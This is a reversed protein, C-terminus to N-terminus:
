YIDDPKQCSVAPMITSVVQCYDKLILIVISKKTLPDAPQWDSFALPM